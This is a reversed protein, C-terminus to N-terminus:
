QWNYFNKTAFDVIRRAHFPFMRTSAIWLLWQFIQDEDELLDTKDNWESFLYCSDCHKTSAGWLECIIDNGDKAVIIGAQFREEISYSEIERLFDRHMENISETEKM